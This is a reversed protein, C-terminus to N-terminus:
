QLLGEYPDGSINLLQAFAPETKIGQAKLRIIQQRFAEGREKLIAYEKIMHRYGYQQKVPITQCFLEIQFASITFNVVVAIEERIFTDKITFGLFGGFQKSVEEKFGKLDLTTCAIDLDSNEVAIDIPVTGILLPQFKGLKEMIQYDQLVRFAQQHVASGKQLYAITDFKKMKMETLSM